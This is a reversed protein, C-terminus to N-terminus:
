NVVWVRVTGLGSDGMSLGQLRPTFALKKHQLLGIRGDIGIRSTVLVKRGIEPGAALPRFRVNLGLRFRREMVDAKSYFASM